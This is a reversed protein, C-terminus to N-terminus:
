EDWYVPPMIERGVDWHPMKLPWRHLEHRMRGRWPFRIELGTEHLQIKDDETPGANKDFKATINTKELAYGTTQQWGMEFRPGRFRWELERVYDGSVHKLRWSPQFHSETRTISGGIVEYTPRDREESWDNISTQTTNGIHQIFVRNLDEVESMLTHHFLDTIISAERLRRQGKGSISPNPDLMGIVVRSVKRQVLREACPIKPHNRNTCPELTTYVTSGALLEDGLKKEIVTYEAHDGPTLEGRYGSALIKGDNVVVVGVMPHVRDDEVKSKRAEEIALRMFKLDNDTINDIHSWGRATIKIRDARPDGEILQLEYLLEAIQFIEEMDKAAVETILHPAENINLITKPGDSAMDAFRLLLEDQKEIFTKPFGMYQYRLLWDDSTSKWDKGVFPTAGNNNDRRIKASILHRFEGFRPHVKAAISYDSLKYKGCRPCNYYSFDARQSVTSPEILSEDCIPCKDRPSM